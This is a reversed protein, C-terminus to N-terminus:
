FSESYRLNSELQLLIHKVLLFVNAIAHTAIGESREQVYFIVEGTIEYTGEVKESLEGHFWTFTATTWESDDTLGAV